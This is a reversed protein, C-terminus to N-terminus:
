TDGLRIFKATTRDNGSDGLNTIGNHNNEIAFRVKHTSTSTVDFIFECTVGSYSDVSYNNSYNEAATDYSSNDTTTQLRASAFTNIAGGGGSQSTRFMILYIGTSPFTFIGSSETMSSGIGGYGDTDTKEWNSSIPNADGTFDASVRWSEAMTIGGGAAAWTLVGSGDTQLFEDASGDTTPFTLTYSASASHAPSKLKIGHSNQSCNLQLTGDTTGDGKIQLGAASSTSVFNTKANTVTADSPTGIDLVNGLALVFDISDSSTLASSFTLTSSSVTFSSGAKQIHGNLSVILHNASEPIFAVSDLTLSYSATASATLADLMSYAGTQPEKGIYSM